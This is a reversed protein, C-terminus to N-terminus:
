PAVRARYAEVAELRIRRHGKPTRRVSDAGFADADALRAVTKPDLGLMTAIPGPGLWVDQKSM